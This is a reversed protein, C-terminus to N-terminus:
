EAPVLIRRCYECRVVPDSTRRIADMASPTLTVQCGKCVNGHLAAAGVGDKRSRLEDYLELLEPPFLPRLEARRAELESLEKEIDVAAADRRATAEGALRELEAVQGDLEAVEKEITERQEMVDMLADEVHAKRRRLSDIEAQIGALEKPNSVEGGYLRDSERHIKEDLMQVEGEQRSQQLVIEDLIKKREAHASRTEERRAVVEDLEVQEPLNARRALLRDITSEVRQLELLPRMAERTLGEM